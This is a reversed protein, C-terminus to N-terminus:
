RYSPWWLDPGKVGLAEATGLPLVGTAVTFYGMWARCTVWKWTVGVAGSSWSARRLTLLLPELLAADCRTLDSLVYAMWCCIMACCLFRSFFCCSSIACSLCSCFIIPKSSSTSSFIWWVWSDACPSELGFLWLKSVVPCFNTWKM